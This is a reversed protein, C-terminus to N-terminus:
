LGALPDGSAKWVARKTARAHRLVITPYTDPLALAVDVLERDDRYTLLEHAADRGLWRVEDIESAPDSPFEELVTARWYRM